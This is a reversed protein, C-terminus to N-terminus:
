VGRRQAIALLDRAPGPPPTPGGRWVARLDRHLDVGSTPVVVLRGATVDDAVVLASLVAPGAGALVAARVAATTSLELVPEAQPHGAARLAVALAERTGSGAERVVLPTAALEAAVLPRRRRALPHDPPVVVVLEDRGVVRTRLGPLRAPTEVFGLDADGGRVLDAVHESNIATLTTDLAPVAATTRAHETAPAPAGDARGRAQERLAVLWGPLLQEAVTLSAAVRLRTRRDARLTELGLDLAHAADLVRAAWQAVVEGEPTLTSGRRTRDVLRVGVLRQLASVRQAVAQQSIGLEDAAANQSGAHAVALLTDLAVLDPTRPGLPM